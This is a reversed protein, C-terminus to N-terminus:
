YNKGFLKTNNMSKLNVQKNIWKRFINIHPNKIRM